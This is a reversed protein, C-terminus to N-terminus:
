VEHGFWEDLHRVRQPGGTHLALVLLGDAALPRARASVAEAREGPALHILSYWGLVAAWGDAAPPRVLRR